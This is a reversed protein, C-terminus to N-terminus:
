LSWLVSPLAERRLIALGLLMSVRVSKWDLHVKCVSFVAGTLLVHAQNIQLPSHHIPTPLLMLYSRGKRQDKESPVSCFLHCAWIWFAYSTGAAWVVFSHLTPASYFGLVFYFCCCWAMAMKVIQWPWGLNFITAAARHSIYISNKKYFM